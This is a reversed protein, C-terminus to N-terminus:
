PHAISLYVDPALASMQRESLFNAMDPLITNGNEFGSQHDM